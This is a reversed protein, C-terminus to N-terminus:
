VREGCGGRRSNAVDLLLVEVTGAVNAADLAATEDQYCLLNCLQGLESCLPELREALAPEMAEEKLATLELMLGDYRQSWAAAIRACAEHLLRAISADTGAKEIVHIHTLTNLIRNGFVSDGEKEFLSLLLSAIASISAFDPFQLFEIIEVLPRYVASDTKYTTVLEAIHPVVIENMKAYFAGEEQNDHFLQVTAKLLVALLTLQRLTLGLEQRQKSLLSAMEEVNLVKENEENVLTAGAGACNRVFFYVHNVEQADAAFEELYELVRILVQTNEPVSSKKGGLPKTLRYKHLYHFARNGINRDADIALEFM